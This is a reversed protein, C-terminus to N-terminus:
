EIIRLPLEMGVDKFKFNEWNHPPFEHENEVYLGTRLSLFINQPLADLSGFSPEILSCSYLSKNLLKLVQWLEQFLERILGIQTKDLLPLNRELDNLRVSLDNHALIKDRYTKLSSYNQNKWAKEIKQFMEHASKIDTDNTQFLSRFSLNSQGCSEPPDLLRAIRLLINEGLSAQVIIFFAPATAQIVDTRYPNPHDYLEVYTSLYYWIFTMEDKIKQYIENTM